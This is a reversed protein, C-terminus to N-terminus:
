LLGKLNGKNLFPSLGICVWFSTGASKKLDFMDENNVETQYCM